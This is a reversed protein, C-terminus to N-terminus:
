RTQRRGGARSAMLAAALAALAAGLAPANGLRAFPTLGQMGQVTVDLVGATLPELRASVRGDAEILATMGTNTARLMPRGTELTRMRAIQLHQPLAHSDGFWAINSVNALITAGGAANLADRIEEGFLDEYCVNFAIRQGGVEFAPQGVPGRAFDGLPIQMMRVFWGFGWPVFEGFPVLHRKDYRPASVTPDAAQTGTILLVSNSLRAEGRADPPAYLPMGIAIAHGRAAHDLIRRAIPEPTRHWPVTWATEPLITLAANGSEFRSTYDAMAAVIREPRFKMDQAVNGQVLRVRLPPGAPTTWGDRPVALPAALLAAALLAATVPSAARPSSPLPSSPLPSAPDRSDSPSAASRRRAGLPLAAAILAAVAVAAGGIAYVGALPALRALPGDIQAYGIALWPFGTLVWGRALEGLTWAGALGAAHVLPGRNACFRWALWSAAAPYSSLYAAFLVVAAAAMPAPMGGYVHMSVYLWSLGAGFWGLGFAAAIGAQALPTAGRASAGRMLAFLGALAALSVLWHTWPAFSAAHLLGLAFAGLGIAARAGRRGGPAPSVVQPGAPAPEAIPPRM